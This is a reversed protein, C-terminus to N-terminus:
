IIEGILKCYGPPYEERGEELYTIPIEREGIPQPTIKRTRSAIKLKAPIWAMCPDNDPYSKIYELGSNWPFGDNCRTNDGKVKFPCLRM